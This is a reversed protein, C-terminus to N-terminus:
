ESAPTLNEVDDPTADNEATNDNVLLMGFWRWVPADTEGPTQVPLTCNVRARRDQLPQALRIEFRHGGLRTIPAKGVGSVFCSLGSLNTIDQTVTFGIFPQNQHIVPDGPVVDTVPLPLANATLRFRDIDDFGETMTFRPLAYIDAGGHVVGSQQGFAAKFTYQSVQNRLSASYEGYPYAFFSPASDLMEQFRGIAKNIIAANVSETNATMRMYPGPLLGLTVLKNKRLSQIRDWDAYGADPGDAMDPSIFVTYPLGADDLLPLANELTSLYAGDFTLAVSRPPLPKGAVADALPIVNYGGTELERVHAAFTETDIGNQAGSEEGIRQYGFVVASYTTDAAAFAPVRLCLPLVIAGLMAFFFNTYHRQM